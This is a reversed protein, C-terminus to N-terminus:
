KNGQRTFVLDDITLSDGSLSYELEGTLAQLYASEQEMVGEEMCAMETSMLSGITIKGGSLKYEGGYSNCGASGGLSNGEFTLSITTGQLPAVGNISALEWSTDKLSGGEGYSCAVLLALLMLLSPITFLRKM